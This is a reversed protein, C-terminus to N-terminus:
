VSLLQFLSLVPRQELLIAASFASQLCCPPEKLPLYDVATHLSFQLPACSFLKCPIQTRVFFSSLCHFFFDIIGPCSHFINPPHNNDALRSVAMSGDSQGSPSAACPTGSVAFVLRNGSGAASRFVPYQKLLHPLAPLLVIHPKSRAASGAPPCIPFVSLLFDSPTPVGYSCDPFDHLPFHLSLISRCTQFATFLLHNSGIVSKGKRVFIHTRILGFAVANLTLTSQYLPVDHSARFQGFLRTLLVHVIAIGACRCTARRKLPQNLIRLVSLHFRNDYLVKGPEGTVINFCAIIHLADEWQQANTKDRDVIPIVTSHLGSVIYTSQFHGDLVDDVCGVAPVKGSFDRCCVMHHLFFSHIESSVARKSEQRVRVVTM